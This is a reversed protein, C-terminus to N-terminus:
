GKPPHQSGNSRAMYVSVRDEVENVPAGVPLEGDLVKRFQKAFEILAPNKMGFGELELWYDVYAKANYLTTEADM